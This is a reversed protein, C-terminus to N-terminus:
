GDSAEMVIQSLRDIKEVTGIRPGGYPNTGGPAFRVFPVFAASGTRGPLLSTSGQAMLSWLVDADWPRRSAPTAATWRHPLRDVWSPCCWSSAGKTWPVSRPRVVPRDISDCHPPM